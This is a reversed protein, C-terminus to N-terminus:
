HITATLPNWVSPGSQQFGFIKPNPSPLIGVQQVIVRTNGVENWFVSNLARYRLAFTKIYIEDGSKWKLNSVKLRGSLRKFSM